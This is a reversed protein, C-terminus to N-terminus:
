RWKRSNDFVMRKFRPRDGFNLVLGVELSTCRLYNLLQICHLDSISPACKLELIVVSELIFDARFRGVPRSRFRVELESERDFALGAELLGIEMANAYVSELFGFGLECYVQYFVGIAARTLRAHKLYPRPAILLSHEDEKMRTLGRSGGEFRRM